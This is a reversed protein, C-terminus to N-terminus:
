LRLRAGDVELADGAVVPRAEGDRGRVWWREDGFWVHAGAGEHWGRQLRPREGGTISCVGPLAQCPLADGEVGLVHDPLRVDVVELAVGHALLVRLGPALTVQGLPRGDVAFGGRLGVLQLEGERLSVMAHAESVRGDNIRLAASWVRGIIDGAVLEYLAGDPGLLTVAPNM